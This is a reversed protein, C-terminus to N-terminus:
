VLAGGVIIALGFGILKTFMVVWFCDMLDSGTIRMMLFVFVALSLIWGVTPLLAIVSTIVVIGLLQKLEAQVFSLKTAVYMCLSTIVVDLTFLVLFVM